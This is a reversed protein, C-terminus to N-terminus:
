GSGLCALSRRTSASWDPTADPGAALIARLVSRAAQMDEDATGDACPRAAPLLHQEIIAIPWAAAPDGGAERRRATM